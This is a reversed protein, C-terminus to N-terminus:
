HRDSRDVAAALEPIRDNKPSVPRRDLARRRRAERYELGNKRIIEADTGDHRRCSSSPSRAFMTARTPVVAWDSGSGRPLGTATGSATRIDASPFRRTWRETGQPHERQYQRLMSGLEDNPASESEAPVPAVVLVGRILEHRFGDDYETVEDFEEPTMLMGASEPGLILPASADIPLPSM